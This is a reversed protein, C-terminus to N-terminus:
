SVVPELPRRIAAAPGSRYVIVKSGHDDLEVAFNPEPTTGGWPIENVNGSLLARVQFGNQSEHSIAPSHNWGIYLDAFSPPLRGQKGLIAEVNHGDLHTDSFGFIKLFAVDHSYPEFNMSFPFSHTDIKSLNSGEFQGRGPGEGQKADPPLFLKPHKQRFRDGFVGSFHNEGM